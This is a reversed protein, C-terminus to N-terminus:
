EGALRRRHGSRRHDHDRMLYSLLVKQCYSLVELMDLESLDHDEKFTWMWEDARSQARHRRLVLERSLREKEGDDM